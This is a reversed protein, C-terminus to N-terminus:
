PRPREVVRRGTLLEDIADVPVLWKRGVRVARLDGRDIAARLSQRHLGLRAAAEALSLVLREDNRFDTGPM